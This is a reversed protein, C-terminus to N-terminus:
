EKENRLERGRLFKSMSFFHPMSAEDNATQRGDKKMRFLIINPMKVLYM